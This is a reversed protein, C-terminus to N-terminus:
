DAAKFQELFREDPMNAEDAIARKVYRPVRDTTTTQGDQLATTQPNSTTDSSEERPASGDCLAQCLRRLAAKVGVDETSAISVPIM